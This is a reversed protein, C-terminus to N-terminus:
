RMSQNHTFSRLRCIEIYGNAKCNEIPEISHGGVVLTLSMCECYYYYFRQALQHVHPIKLIGVKYSKEIRKGNRETKKKKEITM